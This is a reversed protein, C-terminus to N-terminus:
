SCTVILAASIEGWYAVNCLSHTNNDFDTAVIQEMLEARVKSRSTEGECLWIGELIVYLLHM